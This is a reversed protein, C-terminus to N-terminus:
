TQNTLGADYGSPCGPGRFPLSILCVSPLNKVMRQQYESAAETVAADWTEAGGPVKSLDMKLYKAPNGFAMNDTPVNYPGAFDRLYGKSTVMGIHGFFPLFWTLVPIPTWVISSSINRYKGYEECEMMSYNGYQM